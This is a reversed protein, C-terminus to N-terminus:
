LPVARQFCATPQLLKIGGGLDFSQRRTRQGHHAFDFRGPTDPGTSFRDTGVPRCRSCIEQTHNGKRVLAISNARGKSEVLMALARRAIAFRPGSM